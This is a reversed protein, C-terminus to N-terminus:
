DLQRGGHNSVWVGDIVGAEAYEKCLRADEACMVGKIIIKLKTLKRILKIDEWGMELQHNKRFYRTLFSEGEIEAGESM